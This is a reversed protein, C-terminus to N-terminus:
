LLKVIVKMQYNWVLIHEARGFTYFFGVFWNNEPQSVGVPDLLDGKIRFREFQLWDSLKSKM